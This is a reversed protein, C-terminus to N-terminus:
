WVVQFSPSWTSRAHKTVRRIGLTSQQLGSLATLVTPTTRGKSASRTSCAEAAGTCYTYDISLEVVLVLLVLSVTTGGFVM